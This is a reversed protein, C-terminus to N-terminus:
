LTHLLNDVARHAGGTVAVAIFKLLKQSGHGYEFWVVNESSGNSTKSVMVCYADGCGSSLLCLPFSHYLCLSFAIIFKEIVLEKTQERANLCVFSAILWSSPTCFSSM